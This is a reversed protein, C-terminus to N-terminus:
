FRWIAHAEVGNATVVPSVSLREDGPAANADRWGLYYLAAGSVALTAAAGSFLYMARQSAGGRAWLIEHGPSWAEEGLDDLRRHDSRARIGSAIAAGGAAVGLLLLGQGASRKLSRGAPRKAVITRARARALEKELSAVQRAREQVKKETRQARQRARECARHLATTRERYVAELKEREAITRRLDMVYGQVERQLRRSPRTALFEDYLALAKRKNGRYHAAVATHYLAMPQAHIAQARVLVEIADDYDGAEILDVGRKVMSRALKKRERESEPVQDPTARFVATDPEGLQIGVEGRGVSPCDAQAPDSPLAWWLVMVLGMSCGRVTTRRTWKEDRTSRTM